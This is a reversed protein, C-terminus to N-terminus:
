VLIAAGRAVDILEDLQVIRDRAARDAIRYRSQDLLTLNPPDISRHM